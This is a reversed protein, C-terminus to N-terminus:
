GRFARLPLLADFATYDRVADPDDNLPTGGAEVWAHALLHGGQKRVGIRLQAATGRRALLWLLVLSRTLCQHSGLARTVAANVLGAIAALDGDQLHPGSERPQIWAMCRALGFTRLALWFLPAAVFASAYVRRSNQMLRAPVLRKRVGAVARRAYLCPLCTRASDPYKSRMYDAPPFCQDLFWRLRASWSPMAVVDLSARRLGGSALYRAPAEERPSVDLRDMVGPPLQTGFRDRARSLGERTISRLGKRTAADVLIEWDTPSLTPALLHIDYLWILRDPDHHDEGDVRYAYHRHTARHMCAILLSDIPSTGRAHLALRPLPVSRTALEAYDFTRSLLESNNIRWHADLSHESGDEAIFTFTSQYSPVGPIPVFGCRRLAAAVVAQSGPPLLLDTDARVRLAPDDYLHSALASGKIVLAPAGADRLAGLAAAVLQRHRMEWAAFALATQRLAAATPSGAAVGRRHLLGEVGHMRARQEFRAAIRADSVSVDQGRLGAVIQADAMADLSLLM